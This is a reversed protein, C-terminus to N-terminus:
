CACRTRACRASPAKRGNPRSVATSAPNPSPPLASERNPPSRPTPGTARPRARVRHRTGRHPRVDTRRRWAVPQRVDQRHRLQRNGLPGQRDLHRAVALLGLRRRQPPLLAAARRLLGAVDVRDHRDPTRRRAAPRRQLRRPAHRARPRRLLRPAPPDGRRRRPDLLRELPVPGAALRADTRRAAFPHLLGVAQHRLVLPAAPTRRVPARRRGLGLQRDARLRDQRRHRPPRPRLPLQAPGSGLVMGRHLRDARPGDPPRGGRHLRRPRGRALVAGDDRARLERQPKGSRQLDRRPVRADRPQRHRSHVPRPLQRPVTRPVTREPRADAAPLRGKRQLQRVLRALHVDHARRAAPRLAGHPGVVLLPGAGVRQRPRAPQRRRRRARPREPRRARLPPHPQVRGAPRAARRAGRGARSDARLRRAVAPPECGGAHPDRSRRPGTRQLAAPAERPRHAAGNRRHRPPPPPAQPAEQPPEQPAKQAQPARRAQPTLRAQPARAGRRAHRAPRRGRPTPLGPGDRGHSAARDLPDFLRTGGAGTPRVNSASPGPGRM